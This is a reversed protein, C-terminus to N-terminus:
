SHVPHEARHHVNGTVGTPSSHDLTCTLVRIETALDGLGHDIAILAAVILKSLILKHGTDLM